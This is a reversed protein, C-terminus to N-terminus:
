ISGIVKAYTNAYEKRGIITFTIIRLAIAIYVLFKILIASIFGFNQKYFMILGKYEGLWQRLHPENSSGGSLHKITVDPYYMVKYGNKQMRFCLEVDEFYMFYNSNFYGAKKLAEKRLIMFSGSVWGIEHTSQFYSEEMRHLQPKTFGLMELNFLWNILAFGFPLDGGSPQLKNDFGVIKCGAIAIKQDSEMFDVMKDLAGPSMLADSNFILIYKSDVKELVFNHGRGFGVNEKSEIFNVSRGFKKKLYELSGDQSNNDVVWVEYSVKWKNEFISELAKATLEKTKYNVISVVLDNM